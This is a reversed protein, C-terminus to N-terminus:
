HIDKVRARRRVPMVRVNPRGVRPVGAGSPIGYVSSYKVSQTAAHRLEERIRDASLGLMVCVTHFAFLRDSDAGFIWTEAEKFRANNAGRHKKYELLADKLVAILLKREAECQKWRSAIYDSDIILTEDPSFLLPLYHDM